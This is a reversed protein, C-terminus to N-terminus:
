LDTVRKTSKLLLHLRMWKKSPASVTSTTRRVSSKTLECKGCIIYDIAQGSTRMEGLRQFWQLNRWTPLLASTLVKIGTAHPLGGRLTTEIEHRLVVSLLRTSDILSRTTAKLPLLTQPHRLSRTWIRFPSVWTGRLWQVESELLASINQSLDSRYTLVRLLLRMVKPHRQGLYRKLIIMVMSLRRRCQIPPALLTM